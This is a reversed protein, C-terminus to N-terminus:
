HLYSDFHHLSPTVKKKGGFCPEETYGQSAQFESQLGPQGRVWFDVQRQRGLAPILPMCWGGGPQHKVKLFQSMQRLKM